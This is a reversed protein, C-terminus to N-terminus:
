QKISDKIYKVLAEECEPELSNTLLDATKRQASGKLDYLSLINKYASEAGIDCFVRLDKEATTKNHQKIYDDLGTGVFNDLKVKVKIVTVAFKPPKTNGHYAFDAYIFARSPSTLDDATVGDFVGSANEKKTKKFFATLACSLYWEDSRHYIDISNRLESKIDAIMFLTENKITGCGYDARIDATM